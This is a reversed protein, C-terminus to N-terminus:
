ACGAAAEGKSNIPCFTLTWRYKDDQLSGPRLDFYDAQGDIEISGAQKNVEWEASLQQLAKLAPLPADVRTGQSEAFGGPWPQPGSCNRYLRDLKPPSYGLDHLVVPLSSGVPWVKLGSQDQQMALYAFYQRVGCDVQPKPGGGGDSCAPSAIDFLPPKADTAPKDRSRTVKVNMPLDFLGDASAARGRGGIGIYATVVDFAPVLLYGNTYAADVILRVEVPESQTVDLSQSTSATEAAFRCGSSGLSNMINSALYELQTGKLKVQFQAECVLDELKVPAGSADRLNGRNREVVRDTTEQSVGVGTSMLDTPANANLVSKVNGAGDKEDHYADSLGLMHGVEHAFTKGVPNQAWTTESEGDNTPVLLNAPDNSQWQDIGSTNVWSRIAVASPDIRVGLHGKAVHARDPVLTIVVIVVLRYCRYHYGNNWVDEASSAIREAEAETVKTTTSRCAQAQAAKTGYPNGSCGSYIQIHVAATITKAKHDVTWTVAGASTDALAIPAGLAGMAVLAVLLATAVRRIV